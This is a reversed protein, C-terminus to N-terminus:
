RGSLEPIVLMQTAKKVMKATPRADNMECIHRTRKLLKCVVRVNRTIDAVAEAVGREASPLLATVLAEVDEDTCQEVRAKFGVRSYLQKLSDRGGGRLNALLKPMGALVVGVGCVDHIRRCLELGRTPLVEAQDIIVLTDTGELSRFVHQMMSYITGRGNGGTESHLARALGKTTFEAGVEIRLTSREHETAYAQLAFTKGAGAEGIVVAIDKESHALTAVSRIRRYSSTEVTDTDAPTDRQDRGAERDLFTQVERAVGDVDGPYSDALWQSITSKGRSIARAVSNQSAGTRDIYRQLRERVAEVDITPATPPTTETGNKTVATM